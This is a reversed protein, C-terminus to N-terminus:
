PSAGARPFYYNVEDSESHHTLTVCVNWSPNWPSNLIHKMLDPVQSLQEIYSVVISHSGLIYIYICVYMFMCVYICVCM